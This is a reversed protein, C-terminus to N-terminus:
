TMSSQVGVETLCLDCAGGSLRPDRLFSAAPVLSVSTEAPLLNQELRAWVSRTRGFDRAAAALPDSLQLLGLASLTVAAAYAVAVRHQGIAGSAVAASLLTTASM